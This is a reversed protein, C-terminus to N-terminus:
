DLKHMKFTEQERIRRWRREESSKIKLKKLVSKSTQNKVERLRRDGHKPKESGLEWQLQWKVHVKKEPKERMVTTRPSLFLEIEKKIIQTTTKVSRCDYDEYPAVKKVSEM